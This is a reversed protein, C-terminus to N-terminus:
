QGQASINFGNLGGVIKEDDKLSEVDSLIKDKAEKIFDKKIKELPTVKYTVSGASRSRFSNAARLFRDDWHTTFQRSSTARNRTALLM